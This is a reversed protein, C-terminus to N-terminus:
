GKIYTELHRIMNRFNKIDIEKNTKVNVDNGAQGFDILRVSSDCIMINDPKIDGHYWNKEHLEKLVKGIEVKVQTVLNNNIYEPQEEMIFELTAGKCYRFAIERDVDKIFEPQKDLLVTHKEITESKLISVLEKINHLEKAFHEVDRFVKLVINNDNTKFIKGFTGESIEGMVKLVNNNGAKQLTEVVKLYRYKGNKDKRKYRYENPKEKCAYVTRLVRKCKGDNTKLTIYHKGNSIWKSM